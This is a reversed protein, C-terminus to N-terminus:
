SRKKDSYDDHKVSTSCQPSSSSNSQVLEPESSPIRNFHPIYTVDTEVKNVPSLLFNNALLSFYASKQQDAQLQFM